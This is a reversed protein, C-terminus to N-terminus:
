LLTGQVASPEAFLSVTTTDLRRAAMECYRESKEIGVARVGAQKAAVLTTGSGCFPDLLAAPATTEIARVPLSLPFPAPHDSGTEPPTSWVDGVGSAGKSKLRWADKAIVIVVEYTPVYHTPAFNIGSGRAWIIEQRVPLSPPVLCRPHWLTRQPRPKHNYFIAGDDTLHRWMAAICRRQWREYEPMPLADAHGDYGESLDGGNWLGGPRKGHWKHGGGRRGGGGAALKADAAYHGFGGGTTTGLNYPPSTFVLDFRGDMKAMVDLCDGLYIAIGDREYYPHMTM